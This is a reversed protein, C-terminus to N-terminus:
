YAIKLELELVGSGNIGNINLNGLYENNKKLVIDGNGELVKYENYYNEGGYKSKIKKNEVKALTMNFPKEIWKYSISEDKTNIPEEGEKIPKIGQHLTKFFKEVAKREDKSLSSDTREAWGMVNTSDDAGSFRKFDVQIKLSKDDVSILKYDFKNSSSVTYHHNSSYFANGLEMMNVEPRAFEKYGIGGVILAASIGLGIYLRKM